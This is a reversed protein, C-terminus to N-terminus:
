EKLTESVQQLTKAILDGSIAKIIGKIQINLVDISDVIDGVENFIIFDSKKLKDIDPLQNNIKNIVEEATINDRKMVRKLRTNESATVTVIYDFGSEHKNEFLIASELMVMSHTEKHKDCFAEFSKKVFPTVLDNVQKLKDKDTFIVSRMKARDLEDNVFIDDGLIRKFGDKIHTEKEADRACIDSNFVPIGQEKFLQAVTSKGAGIGGTLGLKVM